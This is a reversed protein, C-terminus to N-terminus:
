GARPRNSPYDMWSLRLAFSQGADICSFGSCREAFEGLCPCDGLGSWKGGVGLFSVLVSQLRVIRAVLRHDMNM